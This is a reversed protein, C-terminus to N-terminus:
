HRGVAGHYDGRHKRHQIRPENHGFFVHRGPRRSTMKVLIYYIGSTTSWFVRDYSKIAWGRDLEEWLQQMNYPKTPDVVDYQSLVLLKDTPPPPLDTPVPDPPVAPVNATNSLMILVKCFAGSPEAVILECSEIMWGRDLERWLDSSNDSYQPNAISSNTISLVFPKNPPPSGAPPSPPPLAPVPSTTSNALKVLVESAISDSASGTNTLIVEYGDWSWGRDLEEWLFTLNALSNDKPIRLVFLKLTPPPAVAATMEYSGETPPRYTSFSTRPPKPADLAQTPDPAKSPGFLANWANEGKDPSGLIM